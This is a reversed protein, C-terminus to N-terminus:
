TPTVGWVSATRQGPELTQLGAGSHFADPACTMPEVALGRRRQAPSLTDGTFVMAYGFSADMWVTTRRKGDGDDIVVRSVGEEDRELGTYCSDLVATGIPRRQRFDLQTGAVPLTRGTPIGREDAELVSEAPVTLAAADIVDTGVTFYPHQGAGYPLPESGLNTATVSVRLGSQSLDYVVELGLTFPYGTQPHLVYTATVSDPSRQDLQWNAWRALGHIANGHEPESLPTQHDTGGFEYRGDRIRNPWPLLLQGRGGSCMEHEAYGRLVDVHDNTYRRLGAGVETVVVRQSGHVLEVQRGSPQM